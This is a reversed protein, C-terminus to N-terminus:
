PPSRSQRCCSLLLALRGHSLSDSLIKANRRRPDISGLWPSLHLRFPVKFGDYFGPLRQVDVSSCRPWGTGLADPGNGACCDPSGDFIKSIAIHNQSLLIMECSTELNGNRKTPM